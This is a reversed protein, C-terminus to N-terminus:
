VRAENEGGTRVVQRRLELKQSDILRNLDARGLKLGRGAEFENEEETMEAVDAETDNQGM